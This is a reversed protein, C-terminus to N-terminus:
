KPQLRRLVAADPYSVKGTLLPSEHIAGKVYRDFFELVYGNIMAHAARPHLMRADHAKFLSTDAFSGHDTRDMTIHFWDASTRDLMTWYHLAAASSMEIRAADAEINKGRAQPVPGEGGFMLLVPRESGLTVVGRPGLLGHPWGDLNAAAKVRPEDRTAQLSTFGGLSWGLSGVRELDLRSFLRSKPSKDLQTLRDLVFSIDQVYLSVDSSALMIELQERRSLKGGDTVEGRWKQGDNSYSTGDPFRRIENAGSHGISVVIYGHSALFETQFTGSFHTHTGGHNYILVPYRNNGTALSADLISQTRVHALKHVWHDDAYLQPSIAYPAKRPNELVAAPYWVQVMLKRADGANSTSPDDIRDNVWLEEFTGIPHPGRPDSAFLDPPVRYAAKDSDSAWATPVAM